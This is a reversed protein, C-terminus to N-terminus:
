AACVYLKIKVPSGYKRSEFEVPLGLGIPGFGLILNLNRVSMKM